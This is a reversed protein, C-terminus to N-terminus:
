LPVFSPVPRVVPDLRTSGTALFERIRGVVADDIFYDEHGANEVILHPGIEPDSAALAGIRELQAEVDAPRKRLHDPGAVGMVVARRVHAGHHRLVTLIVDADDRLADLMAWVPLRVSLSGPIGPGGELYVIPPGPNSSRTPLRFFAVRIDRSDDAERNEPVTVFGREVAQPGGATLLEFAELTAPAQPPEVRPTAQPACGMGLLAVLWRHM